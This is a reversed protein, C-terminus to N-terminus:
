RYPMHGGQATTGTEKFEDTMEFQFTKTPCGEAVVDDM